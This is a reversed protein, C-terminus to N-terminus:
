AAEGLQIARQQQRAMAADARRRSLRDLRADPMSDFALCFFLEDAPTLAKPAADWAQKTEQVKEATLWLLFDLVPRSFHLTREEIAIRDWVRGLTPKNDRLYKDNRWGGAGLLELQRDHHQEVTDRHSVSVLITAPLEDRILRYLMLELGEDMASTSEDLCVM